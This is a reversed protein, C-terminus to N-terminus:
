RAARGLPEREVTLELVQEERLVTLIARSGTAGRLVSRLREADLDDVLIGDVM